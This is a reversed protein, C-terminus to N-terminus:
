QLLGEKSYYIFIGPSMIGNTVAFTDTGAFYMDIDGSNYQLTYPGVGTLVYEGKNLLVKLNKNGDHRRILFTEMPVPLKEEPDNDLYRYTGPNGYGSDAYGTDLPTFIIFHYKSIFPDQPINTLYSVPSTLPFFVRGVGSGVGGVNNMMTQVRTKGWSTTYMDNNDVLMIGHDLQFQQIATSLTKLQSQSKAIKARIQANLFNPIAIAALISIVLVVVLLEVLSFARRPYIM